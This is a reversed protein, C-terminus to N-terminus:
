EVVGARRFGPGTVIDRLLFRVDYGADAFGEAHWDVLEEEGDAMSHAGAYQYLTRALCPALHPDDHVAGALGVADAFATGDLSGSPDIVAGNDTTRWGGLGDFNELGLGLPDTLSHCAACTPDSLHQAVRDRMTPAEETVEPISTDVGAPPPPLPECLLVERIFLGRRTVSTGAPHAHLALVSVQGLLGARGGDAPLETEGFGDRSPAPIGYIAALKRNVFTRRTTLADRWDAGEDVLAQM